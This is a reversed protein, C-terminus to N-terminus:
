VKLHRRIAILSSVIGLLLGVGLLLGFIQFFNATYYDYVNIGGFFLESKPGLWLALPYFIIVSIVAGLVGYMVGEVVFPGAVFRNSAGVLRMVGIEERGTYIALRITNFTVLISIAILILSIVLGLRNSSNLIQSLRDIVVKNQFYNIKYIISGPGASKDSDDLFKAISAYQSIEKAHINLSAGLPNDGLEELSQTILANNKHREKFDALAQDRSVYNADKVEPLKLISERLALIGDESADPKFYVSIDVKSQIQDLTYILVARAFILSGITFLTLTVILVTALSVWSNRWFSFFGAKVVRKTKVVVMNSSKQPM